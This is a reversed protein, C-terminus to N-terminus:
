PFRPLPPPPPTINMMSESGRREASAVGAGGPGGPVVPGAVRVQGCGSGRPGLRAEVVSRHLGTTSGLLARAAGGTFYGLARRLSVLRSRLVHAISGSGLSPREQHSLR